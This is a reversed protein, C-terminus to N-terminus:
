FETYAIPYVITVVTGEIPKFETFKDNTNNRWDYLIINKSEALEKYGHSIMNRYVCSHGTKIRILGRGDLIKLIEDLGLGKEEKYMGHDSTAHKTLCRKIIDIEDMEHGVENLSRYKAAFGIGGDFVSMEMFYLENNSNEKLKKSSFFDKMGKHLKYEEILTSRKKKIFKVLTGRINPELRVHFKDHRGWEFTNKMLEYIIAVFPDKEHDFARPLESHMYFVERIGKEISNRLQTKTEIFEYRNGFCPLLRDDPLHDFETLLLKNGPITRGNLMRDGYLKTLERLPMKLNIGNKSFVGVRNWNLVVVPFILENKFLESLSDESTDEIDILLREAKEYRLWTIIFQILAPVIGFHGYNLMKPLMVNAGVDFKRANELQTLYLDVDELRSNKEINITIM